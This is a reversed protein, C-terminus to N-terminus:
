DENLLREGIDAVIADLRHPMYDINEVSANFLYPNDISKGHIHGHVNWVNLRMNDFLEHPLRGDEMPFHTFALYTEDEVYEVALTLHIEDFKLSKLKKRKGFDHNGAVLIKYGPYAELMHNVESDKAFGVDGVWICIDDPGVCMKYNRLLETHMHDVTGYPRDSYGIINKHFFHQDSWVWVKSKDIEDGDLISDRMEVQDYMWPHIARAKGHSFDTPAFLHEMYIKRLEASVIDLMRSKMM